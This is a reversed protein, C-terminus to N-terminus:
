LDRQRGGFTAALSAVFAGSLLSVFLWLAAYAFVKRTTDLATQLRTYTDTVRKEADAQSLGTRQAVLQGVYQVDGAPLEAGTSISNAFIQTVEAAPIPTTSADAVPTAGQRFLANVSYTMMSGNGSDAKALDAGTKVGGGVITGVAGTLTAATVLTAISWALFGHATDRFYVEDTHVSAWKTRLRGALYGGIASAAIQTFAVWAISSFGLTKATVGQFSWPSISSLGLGVGLMLLILSLSAAGAAGAFIAAWHVGSKDSDNSYPVAVAGLPRVVDDTRLANTTMEVTAEQQSPQLAIRQDELGIAAADM